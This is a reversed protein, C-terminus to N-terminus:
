NNIKSISAINTTNNDINLGWITATLHKQYQTPVVIAVYCYYGARGPGAFQIRMRMELQTFLRSLVTVGDFVTFPVQDPRAGGERSKGDVTSVGDWIKASGPPM